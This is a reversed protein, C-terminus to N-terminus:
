KAWYMIDSFEKEFESYDTKDFRKFFRLTEMEVVGPSGIHRCTLNSEWLKPDVGPIQSQVSRTTIKVKERCGDFFHGMMNDKAKPYIYKMIFNQDSGHKSLDQGKVMQEFTQWEPFTAKFHDVKIGILGGMMPLGHAPNDTIGHFGLGSDIWEQVAQAEKYTTIADCDRCIVHTVPEHSIPIMRRLMSECLPSDPFTHVYHIPLALIFKEYKAYVSESVTVFTRWGPYILANMRANFYLGRAYFKFEFSNVDGFLSYSIVKTM